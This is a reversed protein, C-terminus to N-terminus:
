ERTNKLCLGTANGLAYAYEDDYINGNNLTRNLSFRIKMALILEKEISNAYIGSNTANFALFSANRIAEQGLLLNSASLPRNINPSACYAIGFYCMACNADFTLAYNLSRIAEDHNFGYALNLAQDFYAQTLNNSTTIPRTYNTFIPSLPLTTQCTKDASTAAHSITLCSLTFFLFISSAIM